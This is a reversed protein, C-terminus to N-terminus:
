FLPLSPQGELTATEGEAFWAEYEFRAGIVGRFVVEGHTRRLDIRCDMSCRALMRM